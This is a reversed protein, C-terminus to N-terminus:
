SQKKNQDRETQKLISAQSGVITPKQLNENIDHKYWLVIISNYWMFVKECYLVKFYPVPRKEPQKVPGMM